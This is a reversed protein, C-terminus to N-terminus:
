YYGINNQNNGPNSAEWEIGNYDEITPEPEEMELSVRLEFVLAYDRDDFVLYDSCDVLQLGGDREKIM